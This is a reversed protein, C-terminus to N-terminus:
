ADFYYACEKLLEEKSFFAGDPYVLKGDPVHGRRAKGKLILETQLREMFEAYGSAAAFEKTIGKGNTGIQTGKINVRLSYCNRIGSEVWNEEVEIGLSDLIEKIRNVTDVPDADKFKRDILETM